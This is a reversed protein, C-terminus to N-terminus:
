QLILCLWESIITFFSVFTILYLDFGTFSRCLRWQMIILYLVYLLLKLLLDTISYLRFVTKTGWWYQLVTKKNKTKKTMINTMFNTMTHWINTMTNIYKDYYTLYKDYYILYKDYHLKTMRQFQKLLQQFQKAASCDFFFMWDKSYLFQPLDRHQIELHECLHM